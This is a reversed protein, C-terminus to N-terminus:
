PGATALGRGEEGLARRRLELVTQLMFLEEFALRSRAALLAADSEPFHIANLAPGLPMLRRAAAVEGPVPDEVAAAARDRASRLIARMGLPRVGRPRPHTAVSSA